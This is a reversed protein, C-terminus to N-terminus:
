KFPKCYECAVHDCIVCRQQHDYVKPGDGCECCFYLYTTSCVHASPAVLEMFNAQALDNVLPGRASPRFVDDPVAKPSSTSDKLGHEFHSHGMDLVASPCPSVADHSHHNDTGTQTKQVRCNGCRKRHCDVCHDYRLEHPGYDCHCCYWFTTYPM